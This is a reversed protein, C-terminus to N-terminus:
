SFNERGFVTILCHNRKRILIWFVPKVELVRHKSRLCVFSIIIRVQYVPSAPRCSSASPPSAASSVSRTSCTSQGSLAAFPRSCRTVYSPVFLLSDCGQQCRCCPIINVAGVVSFELTSSGSGIRISVPDTWCSKPDPDM